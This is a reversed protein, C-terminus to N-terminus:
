SNRTRPSTCKNGAAAIVLGKGSCNYDKYNPININYDGDVSTNINFPLKTANVNGLIKQIINKVAPKEVLNIDPSDDGTQIKTITGKFSERDYSRGLDRRSYTCIAWIILISFIIVFVLIYPVYSVNM